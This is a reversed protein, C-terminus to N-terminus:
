TNMYTHTNIHICVEAELAAIRQHQMYAAEHCGKVEAELAAIRRQLAECQEEAAEARQRERPVAYWLTDLRRAVDTILLISERYHQTKYWCRGQTSCGGHVNM